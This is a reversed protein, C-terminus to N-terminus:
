IKLDKEKSLDGFRFISKAALLFGISVFNGTLIFTLILFREIYGIWKGANLLGGQSIKSVEWQKFFQNIFISTPRLILLYAGIIAWLVPSKLYESLIVLNDKEIGEFYFVWLVLIVLIHALQDLIFAKVSESKQRSKILDISIHSVFILFAVRWETWIAVFLYTLIAHILSHIFHYLISKVKGKLLKGDLIKRNQLFFDGILHALLLRFLIDLTNIEM